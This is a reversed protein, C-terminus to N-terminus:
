LDEDDNHNDDHWGFVLRKTLVYMAALFIICYIIVFITNIMM